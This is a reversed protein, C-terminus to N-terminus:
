GADFARLDAIFEARADDTMRIAAQFGLLGLAAAHDMGLATLEAVAAEVINRVRDQLAHPGTADIDKALQTFEGM